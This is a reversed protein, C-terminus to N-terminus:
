ITLYVNKNFNTTGFQTLYTKNMLNPVYGPKNARKVQCLGVYRESDKFIKSFFNM